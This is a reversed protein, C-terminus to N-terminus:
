AFMVAVLPMLIRSPSSSSRVVVTVSVVVKRLVPLEPSLSEPLLDADADSLADPRALASALALALASADPEASRLNASVVTLVVFAPELVLTAEPRVTPPFRLALVSPVSLTCPDFTSDPPSM